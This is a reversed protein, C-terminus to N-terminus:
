GSRVSSWLVSRDVEVLSACGTLAMAAEFEARVITILHVVGVAGAVALAHVIPQGVM